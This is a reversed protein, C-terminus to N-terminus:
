GARLPTDCGQAAAGCIPRRALRLMWPGSRVVSAANVDAAPSADAAASDAAASDGDSDGGGDGSGGEVYDREGGGTANAAIASLARRAAMRTSAPRGEALAGTDGDSSEGHSGGSIARRRKGVEKKIEGVPNIKNMNVIGMSNMSKLNISPDFAPSLEWQAALSKWAVRRRGRGGTSGDRLGICFQILASFEPRLKM